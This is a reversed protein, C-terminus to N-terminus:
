RDNEQAREKRYTDFAYMLLLVFWAGITQYKDNIYGQYALAGCFLIFCLGILKEITTLLALNHKSLKTKFTLYSGQLKYSTWRVL